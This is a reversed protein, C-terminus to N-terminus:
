SVKRLAESSGTKGPGGLMEELGDGAYGAAAIAGFVALGVGVVGGVFMLVGKVM